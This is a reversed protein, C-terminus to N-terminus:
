KAAGRRSPFLTTDVNERAPAGRHWGKRASSGCRGARVLRARTLSLSHHSRTRRRPPPPPALAVVVPRALTM